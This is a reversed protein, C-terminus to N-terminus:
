RDGAVRLNLVKREDSAISLAMSSTITATGPQTQASRQRDTTKGHVICLCTIAIALAAREFAM